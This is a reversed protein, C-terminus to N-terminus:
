GSILRLVHRVHWNAANNTGHLRLSMEDYDLAGEYDGKMEYCNGLSNLAPEIHYLNIQNRMVCIYSELVRLAHHQHDLEGPGGYTLYQLYHLFPRADVEACDNWM